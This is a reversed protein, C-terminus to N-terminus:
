SPLIEIGQPENKQEITSHEENLTTTCHLDLKLQDWHGTGSPLVIVTVPCCDWYSTGGGKLCLKTAVTFKDGTLKCILICVFLTTM